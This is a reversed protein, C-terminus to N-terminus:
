LKLFALNCGSKIYNREVKKALKEVDKLESLKNGIHLSDTVIGNSMCQYFFVYYGKGMNTNAVFECRFKFGNRSRANLLEVVKSAAKDESKTVERM